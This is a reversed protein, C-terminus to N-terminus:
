IKLWFKLFFGLERSGNYTPIPYYYQDDFQFTTFAEKLFISALLFAEFFLYFVSLKM